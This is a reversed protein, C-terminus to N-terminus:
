RIEYLCYGAREALFRIGWQSQREHFDAFGFGERGVLLYGVGASKAEATALRRMGLPPPVSQERYEAVVHSKGGAEFWEVEPRAGAQEEPTLIAVADMELPAGFEAEVYMGPFLREWSAWRTVPSNDFADRVDWPNPWARLKWDRERRLERGKHFFRLETVLFQDPSGSPAAQRVRVRTAAQGPLAFRLERVPHSEQILPTFLIRELREGYASQHAVVLDRDMYSMPQSEWAFVRRGPPALHQIMRAVEIPPFHRTLYESEPQIRLAARWMTRDLRWAYQDAYRKVVDPWSLVGHALVLVALGAPFRSAAMCLALAFLPAAPILFRTGINAAYPLAFLAGAALLRRGEPKGLAFLALPLLLYAPGLLGNLRQGRFTVEAPISWKSELYGYDRMGAAYQEEFLVHVTPNRFVRNFFPSVPNGTVIANKAMWPAIWLAAALAAPAAARFLRGPSRWLRFAFVAAVYVAGVFATYKVAYAFGALIGIGFALGATRADDWLRILYFLGFLVAATAVDNYASTADLGIVPTVFVFLAAALGALGSGYRRGYAALLACLALLFNFHVLAGASQRGFPWAFLFLMEVGQSLSAYISTTIAPFGRERYYRAVLGLHYTTGDPSIEPAMANSLYLAAFPAAAVGAAVWAWRPLEPPEEAAILGRGKWWWLALVAIGAGLMVGKYLLQAAALAFTINSLVASGLLFALAAGEMRGVPIRLRSLALGGAAMSVAATFLWAFVIYFAQPM